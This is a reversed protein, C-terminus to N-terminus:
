LLSLLISAIIQIINLGCPLEASFRVEASSIFLTFPLLKPLKASFGSTILKMDKRFSPFHIVGTDSLFHLPLGLESKPFLFSVTRDESFVTSLWVLLPLLCLVCGSITPM